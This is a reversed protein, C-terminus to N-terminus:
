RAIRALERRGDQLAMMLGTRLDQAAGIDLTSTWEDMFIKKYELTITCIREGYTAYIWEPFNGGDPYRVNEEVSPNAGNVPTERLRRMIAQLVDGYLHKDLTTAGIDIDPNLKAPAPEGEPGDRMHNYSHLDLVLVRGHREVLRDLFARAAAYFRDHLRRSAEMREEPLHDQWITLGWTDEPDDSICGERPRNMDAEFRSRNVRVLNDGLSLFYDTLPDEERRRDNPEIALYPALDSRVVHGAHIATVVVPGDGQLIHWPPGDPNDDDPHSDPHSMGMVIRCAMM